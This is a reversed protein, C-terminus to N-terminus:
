QRRKEWKREKPPNRLPDPKAAVYVLGEGIAHAILHELEACPRVKYQHDSTIFVKPGDVFEICLNLPTSGRFETVTARLSSMMYENVGMEPLHISVRDCFLNAAQDLPFIEM